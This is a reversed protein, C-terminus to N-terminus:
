DPMSSRLSSAISRVMELDGSGSIVLYREGITTMLYVSQTEPGVLLFYVAPWDEALLLDEQVSVQWGSSEWGTLRTEVFQELANVPDWRLVSITVITGDLPIEDPLTGPQRTWSTIQAFYGRDGGVMPPDAVWDAPYALEFGAQPDRYWSRQDDTPAPMPSAAATSTAVAAEVSPSPLSATAPSAPPFTQCGSAALLLILTYFKMQKM